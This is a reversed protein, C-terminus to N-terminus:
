RTTRGGACTRRSRTRHASTTPAATSCRWRAAPGSSTSGPPPWAATVSAIKQVQGGYWRDAAPALIVSIEDSQVYALVAGEVQEALFLAAAQMDAAFRADFPKDLGATYRSFGHGDVRVVAFEGAPLTTRYQSELRKFAVAAPEGAFYTTM